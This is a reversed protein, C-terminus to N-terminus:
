FALILGVTYSKTGPMNFYDIGQANANGLLSTEPDVGSYPTLLWLNTGTFFIDLGKIFTKKLMNTFSYSLTLNRLRIWEADEIYPSTPGTFGSGSNNRRWNQDLRVVIDNASGNSQKVGEFTYDEDRTITGFSTGFYDLAGRTGNWMKGGKKIDFLFSLSVNRYTFTNTIGMTWDPDVNGLPVMETGSIPYGYNPNTEPTGSDDIIVNGDGDREWDYGFISRYPMGVVARIQPDTFGGLFVNDIGEALKIVESKYKSYNVAVNWEFNKTKVPKGEITLEIGKTELSGTNGYYTLFGSSAAISVPLLLDEGNNKFWTFGLGARNNIFKLDAGVELTKTKEPKLNDNGLQTNISWATIGNVPFIIGDPQLWGDSILPKNFYTITNYPTADMAVLSYSARIKGYPVYKNDKLFPLETFIFGGSFSPYFFSNNKEPLTTSWDNRGTINVFIMSKWSLGLDGFVGARRLKWTKELASISTTNNLNYYEPIFIDSALGDNYQYYLETMSHGLTFKLNIDKTLDKNVTALLDSSIDRNVQNRVNVRGFPFSRSNIAFYDKYKMSYWDVGLRYTFTLWETAIATFQTNGILRNVQDTYKNKNATWYPNDYGGGHRYNRQVGGALEYGAANDFTPPTRLLGLMVGSTNSGQQIRDGGSMIYNVDASMSFWKSVKAQTAIKFTNRRYKNNPIIGKEQLDSFSFYYNANDNGGVLSLSNNYKVGTQFF